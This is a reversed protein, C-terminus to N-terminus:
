SARRWVVLIIEDPENQPPVMFIVSTDMSISTIKDVQWELMSRVHKLATTIYNEVTRRSIHMQEAIESISMHCQRSLYFATRCREPLRGIGLNIESEILKADMASELTDDVIDVCANKEYRRVIGLHRFHNYAMHNVAALLYQFPHTVRFLNERKLWLRILVEQAIDDSEMPDHTMTLAYRRLVEFYKRYITEWATRNGNAIELMLLVDTELDNCEIRQKIM